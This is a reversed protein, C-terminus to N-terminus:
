GHIYINVVRKVQSVSVCLSLFAFTAIIENRHTCLSLIIAVTKQLPMNLSLLYSNEKEKETDEM